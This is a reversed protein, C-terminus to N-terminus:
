KQWMKMESNALKKNVLREWHIGNKVIENMNKNETKPMERRHRHSYSM